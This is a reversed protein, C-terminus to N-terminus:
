HVHACVYVSVTSCNQGLFWDGLLVGDVSVYLGHGFCDCAM